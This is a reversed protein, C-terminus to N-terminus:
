FRFGLTMLMTHQMNEINAPNVMQPSYLYYDEDYSTIVWAFDMFYNQDRFGMGFTLSTKEFDNLNDKYPSGYLAYGARIRFPNLNLEGGIRINSAATYSTRITQNVESFNDNRARFRADSYDVFEYDIGIFGYQRILFGLNLNARLPTRLTYDFHGKPSSASYTQSPSGFTHRMTRGYEDRMNFFTPSHVAAGIRVWDVPRAIIGFKFNVGSGTTHVYDEIALSGFDPISDGHDLERYTADERFNITPFGVTGGIYFRDDYNGGLSLVMENLAGSTEIYKTQLVGGDPVASTYRLVGNADRITDKLLYTDWALWTDFRSLNSPHIGNARDQFEHIISNHNNNGAISVNGNFNALRNVGFGMQVKKWKGSSNNENGLAFVIGANAINLNYKDDESGMGNYTAYANAYRLAPSFTFESARYLGIGAPNTSLTSFDAGLAGFAGAAGMSRATGGFGLMSFRLADFATQATACMTAAILMTSFILKKMNSSTPTNSKNKQKFPSKTNGNRVM